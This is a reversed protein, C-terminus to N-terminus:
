VRSTGIELERTRDILHEYALEQGVTRMLDVRGDRTNLRHM